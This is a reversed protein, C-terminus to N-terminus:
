ESRVKKLLDRLAADRGDSGGEGGPKYMPAVNQGKILRALGEADARMAQEDEGSIRDALETPLGTERAIRMKVSSTEYERIKGELESIKAASTSKEGELGSIKEKLAAVDADYKGAKERYGDFGAYKQELREREARRAAEAREGFMRNMEEQSSITIPTFSDAM